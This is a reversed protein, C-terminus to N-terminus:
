MCSATYLTTCVGRACEAYTDCTSSLDSNSCPQGDPIVRPCTAGGADAGATICSGVLCRLTRGDCPQRVSAWTISTCVHAPSCALGLACDSSYTCAAGQRGVPVCTTSVQDCTLGDACLTAKCPMGQRAPQLCTEPATGGCVLGAKCDQTCTTGCLAGVDSQTVAVCTNSSAECGTGPVCGTANCGAAASCTQGLQAPTMCQGCLPIFLGGDTRVVPYNCTASQCQTDGRCVTGGGLSGPQVQCASPSIIPAANCGAENQLAHMCAALSSATLSTGPLGLL